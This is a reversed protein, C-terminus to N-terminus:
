AFPVRPNKINTHNLPPRPQADPHLGPQLEVQLVGLIVLVVDVSFRFRKRFFKADWLACSLAAPSRSGKKDLYKVPRGALPLDSWFGGSGTM